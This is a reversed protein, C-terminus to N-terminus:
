AACRAAGARGTGAVPHRREVVVDLARGRDHTAPTSAASRAVPRDSASARITSTPAPAAPIPMARSSRSAIRSAPTGSSTTALRDGQDVRPARGHRAPRDRLTSPPATRAPRDAPAVGSRTSVTRARPRRDEDARGPHGAREALDTTRAIASASPGSSRGITSGSEFGVEDGLGRRGVDQGPGVTPGDDGRARREVGHLDVAAPALDALRVVHEDERADPRPAITASARATVSRINRSAARSSAASTM